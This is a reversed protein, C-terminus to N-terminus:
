VLYELPTLFEEADMIIFMQEEACAFLFYRESYSVMSTRTGEAQPRSEPACSCTLFTIGGRNKLEPTSTECVGAGAGAGTWHRWPRSM